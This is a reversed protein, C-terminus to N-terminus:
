RRPARPRAAKCTSCALVLIGNFLLRLILNDWVLVASLLLNALMVLLMSGFFMVASRITGRDVATGRMFPKVVPKVPKKNKKKKKTDM